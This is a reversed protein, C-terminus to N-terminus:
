ELRTTDVIGGGDFYGSEPSSGVWSWLITSAVSARRQRVCSSFSYAM